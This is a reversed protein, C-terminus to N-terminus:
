EKLEVSVSKKVHFDELNKQHVFGIDRLVQKEEGSDVKNDIKVEHNVENRHSSITPKISTSTKHISKM